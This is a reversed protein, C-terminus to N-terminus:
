NACRSGEDPEACAAGASSKVCSDHAQRRVTPLDDGMQAALLSTSTSIALCRFNGSTIHVCNSGAGNRQSCSKFAQSKAQSLSPYSLTWSFGGSNKDMYVAGFWPYGNDPQANPQQGVQASQNQSAPRSRTFAAEIDLCGRMNTLAPLRPTQLIIDGMSPIAASPTMLYSQIFTRKSSCTDYSTVMLSSLSYQALNKVHLHLRGETIWWTQLLELRSVDKDDIARQGTAKIRNKLESPIEAIPEMTTALTKLRGAVLENNLRTTRESHTEQSAKPVGCIERPSYRLNQSIIRNEIFENCVNQPNGWYSNCLEANSLARTDAECGASYGYTSSAPGENFFMLLFLLVIGAVVILPVAGFSTQSIPHSQNQGVVSGTQPSTGRGIKSDGSGSKEQKYDRQSSKKEYKDLAEIKCGICEFGRFHIHRFSDPQIKCGVLLKQDLVNRFHKAWTSASPRELATFAGDFLVRTETLFLHHVSQPRPKVAPNPTLGHPYLWLAAREDNTSVQIRPDTVIGQFPHTGQNLLQFLLVALGYRDQEEGLAKPSLNNKLVEPAIFDTSILDAPFRGSPSRPDRISYGDCDMLVIKNNEKYVRINQPKIDIFYHGLKHLSALLECLNIAIELRLSLATHVSASLRKILVPDYYTDLSTTAEQDVFPMIFGVVRKKDDRLIYKVWTYQVFQRAGDLKVIDEPPSQLMAELKKEILIRDSKYIKAAWVEGKLSVKHVSATAGEGIHHSPDIYVPEQQGQPDVALLKM